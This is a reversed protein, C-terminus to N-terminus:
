LRHSLSVCVCSLVVCTLTGYGPGPVKEPIGHIQLRQEHQKWIQNEKGRWRDLSYEAEMGPDVDLKELFIESLRGGENKGVKKRLM